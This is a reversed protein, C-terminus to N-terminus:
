GGQRELLRGLEWVEWLTLGALPLVILVVFLKEPSFLDFLPLLIPAKQLMGFSLAIVGMWLGFKIVTILQGLM